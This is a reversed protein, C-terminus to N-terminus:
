VHQHNTDILRTRGTLLEQMMGQKLLATKARRAELAGIEADMDSLVEAIATQEEPPPFPVELQLFNSKALNYRTAGQASSYIAKRGAPSRFWYSLFMGNAKTEMDLRFGFSFSNLYLDPVDDQLMSCMGVEEPTESSGNFFLDGKQAKNQAETPGVRVRDLFSTDIVPGNMINMFPIYHANGVGFDPKSKGTLGGYVNGLQRMTKVVWEGEFGKLRQKGTLLQQMAGQKIAKKKAILADLSGLLGDVDSLARAIARQEPLPPLAFKINKVDNKYLAGLTTSANITKLTENGPGDKFYYFVFEPIARENLKLLYLNPAVTAYQTRMKFLYVKGIEGRKTILVEGGFLTTKKLFDYSRKDVYRVKGLPSNNEMDTARVYWAHDIHDVVQVNAAVDAFSGNAEFDTLLKLCDGLTFVSWDDPIEGVETRVRSMGVGALQTVGSLEM